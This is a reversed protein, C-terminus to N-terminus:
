PRSGTYFVGPEDPYYHYVAREPFHEALTEYIGSRVGWTFIFPSTLFPDELDLLAGYGTWHDSHVIIVAPALDGAGDFPALVSGSIGYLDRMTDLRVPLYMTLNVALLGAFAATVLLPRLKARGERSICADGPRYPWGALWCLGAASLLTLSFLGEYQYRPGFVWSGVWYAGYFLLLVAFVSGALLTRWDRRAAWVGFPLLIWSLGPWGFADHMGVKVSYITNIRALRLNHGSDSVGYGPGFGVKDYEWWLTYLNFFPDGTAAAQWLLHLSGVLAAAVAVGAARKRFAAPGRVIGILAQVVFPLAVGVATYPRTVALLGIAGGATVVPVWSPLGNEKPPRVVDWWALVFALALVLGLAHSLLSGSIMLFFPSTATLVAALFGGVGGLLRKGLVFTLWVALGGLLPNVWARLGLRIGVSLLAPWGLPYKGFRAGEYDVVFPVLFKKPIVPTPVTVAGGAMAKAQWVYAIEDEIHPVREFIRGAVLYAAIVAALSLALAALDFFRVTKM